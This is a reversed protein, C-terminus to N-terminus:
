GFQNAINIRSEGDDEHELVPNSSDKTFNKDPDILSIPERNEM